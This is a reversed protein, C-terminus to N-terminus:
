YSGENKLEKQLKSMEDKQWGLEEAMRLLEDSSLANYMRAERASVGFYEQIVRLNENKKKGAKIGLWYYRRPRKSSCAALLKLQLEPHKSLSFTAKNAFTNLAIIQREDSTGSMWRMVVLASFGKREDESLKSWLSYDGKDISGLLQFIDIKFKRESAM